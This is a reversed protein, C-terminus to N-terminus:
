REEARSWRAVRRSSHLVATLLVIWGMLPIMLSAAMSIGLSLAFVRQAQEVRPYLSIGYNVGLTTIALAALAVCILFFRLPGPALGRAAFAHGAVLLTVAMLAWLARTGWASGLGIPLTRLTDAPDSGILAILWEAVAAAAFLAFAFAVFQFGRPEIPLRWALCSLAIALTAIASVHVSSTM